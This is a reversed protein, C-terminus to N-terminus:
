RYGPYTRSHPSTQMHSNERSDSSLHPNVRAQHNVSPNRLQNLSSTSFGAVHSMQDASDLFYSLNPYLLFCRVPIEPM